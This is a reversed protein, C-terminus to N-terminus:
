QPMGAVVHWSEISCEDVGRRIKFFGGLGWVTGWSNACYWFKVGNEVGWGLIKIAHGGAYDGSTYEYVGSQYSYFDNYVNFAATIPGNNYIETQIAIENNPLMYRSAGKRLAQTYTGQFGSNPCTQICNLPMTYPQCSDLVVGNTIYFDFAESMWGGGCGNQRACSAIHFPSVIDQTKKTICIRDSIVEASSFYWCSGCEGQDRIMNMSNCNWKNFAYFSEPLPTASPPPAVFHARLELALKPGPDVFGLLKHSLELQTKGEFHPYLTATWAKKKSNIEQVSARTHAPKSADLPNVQPPPRVAHFRSAKGKSSFSVSLSLTILVLFILVKM